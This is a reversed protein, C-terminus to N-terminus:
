VPRGPAEAEGSRLSRRALVVGLSARRTETAKARRNGHLPRRRRPRCDPRTRSSLVKTTPEDPTMRRRPPYSPHRPHDLRHLLANLNDRTYTWDFSTAPALGPHLRTAALVRRTGPTQTTLQAGRNRDATPGPHVAGVWGARRNIGVPSTSLREVCSGGCRGHHRNCRRRWFAGTSHGSRARRAANAREPPTTKTGAGLAAARLM